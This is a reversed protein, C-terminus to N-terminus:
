GRINTNKMKLGSINVNSNNGINFIRGNGEADIVVSGNGMITLDKNTINVNKDYESTYIGAPIIVTDGPSAANVKDQITTGNVENQSSPLIGSLLDFLDFNNITTKSGTDSTYGPASVLLVLGLILLGIGLSLKFYMTREKSSKQKITRKIESIKRM